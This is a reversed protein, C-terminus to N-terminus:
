YSRESAELLRRQGDVGADKERRRLLRAVHEQARSRHMRTLRVCDALDGRRLAEIMERHQRTARESTHPEYLYIARYGDSMSWLRDLEQTILSWQALGFIAFHFDRNLRVFEPLDDAEAAVEMQANLSSLWEIRQDPLDPISLILDDELLARMRYIQSLDALRLKPVTYGKNTTYRLSGEAALIGLAERVPIRSMGLTEAVDAQNVSEGPTLDGQVIAARLHSLASEVSRSMGITEAVHEKGSMSMSPM